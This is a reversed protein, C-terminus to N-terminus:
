TREAPLPEGADSFRFVAWEGGRLRRIRALCFLTPLPFPASPDFPLALEWTRGRRRILGGETNWPPVEGPAATRWGDLDGGPSSQAVARVITGLPATLAASFRRRLPATGEWVGLFLREGSGEAYIRYLGSPVAADVCFLTDEGVAATYLTGARQGNWFFPYEM